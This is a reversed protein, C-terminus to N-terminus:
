CIIEGEIMIKELPAPTELPRLYALAMLMGTAVGYCRIRYSKSFVENRAGSDYLRIQSELWVTLEDRNLIQVGM